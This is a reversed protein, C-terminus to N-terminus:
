HQTDSALRTRYVGVRTPLVHWTGPARSSSVTCGWGRPSFVTVRVSKGDSMPVGGGAHPCSRGKYPDVRRTRYVGVRTPVVAVGSHGIPYNETCGWGRPSLGFGPIRHLSGSPVGGGAHPCSGRRCSARVISRYVGVRTPVVPEQAVSPRPTVTCGWGRPSLM